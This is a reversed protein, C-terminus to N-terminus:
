VLAKVHAFVTPEVLAKHIFFAEVGGQDHSQGFAQLSTAVYLLHNLVYVVGRGEEFNGSDFNRFVDLAFREHRKQAAFVRGVPTVLEVIVIVLIGGFVGDLAVIADARVSIRQHVEIVVNVMPFEIVELVVRLLHVVNVALGSCFLHGGFHALAEFLGHLLVIVGYAILEGDVLGKRQCAARPFPHGGPVKNERACEM